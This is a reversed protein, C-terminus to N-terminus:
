ARTRSTNGTQAPAGRPAMVPMRAAIPSCRPVGWLWTPQDADKAREVHKSAGGAVAAAREVHKPRHLFAEVATPLGGADVPLAEVATPLGGADIPLGEVAVPRGQVEFALKAVETWTM